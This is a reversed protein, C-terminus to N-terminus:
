KVVDARPYVFVSKTEVRVREPEDVAYAEIIIPLTTNHSVNYALAKKARLIVVEKVKGGTRAFIEHRPRMIEIDDRGKVKFSYYHDKKDTNQFLFVYDNDVIGKGRVEYLQSSRTINLLMTEKKGGVVVAIIFVLALVIMYGITKFRFYRVQKKTEVANPSSWMVLSPKNKKEMVEACADVCELCNICELQMGKRIDIHTPCVNVCKECNICEANPNNKRPAFALKNGNKDYVAGGREEDYVAMLTDDDFLVSQVRAYPCIYICFNEAIFTIDFVLFAAICLWFVILIKHNFPDILYAFFEEPPVFYFLFVASAMLAIPVFLVIAFIKKFDNSIINFAPKRQKNSIKKRLGLLTTEIFDRYIVRFITQPCSWGCWIRGGITTMFFVGVFLLILLFPMVYLEQVNFASGLLQLETHEFSLLFIHNGGIRIFPLVIAIIAIIFYVIYRRKRYLVNNQFLDM